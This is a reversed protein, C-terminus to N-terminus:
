LVLNPAVEAASHRAQREPRVVPDRSPLALWDAQKHM